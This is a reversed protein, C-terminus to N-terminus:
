VTGSKVIVCVCAVYFCQLVELPVILFIHTEEHIGEDNLLGLGKLMAIAHAISSAADRRLSRAVVDTDDALIWRGHLCISASYM